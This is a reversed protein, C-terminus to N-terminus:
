RVLGLVLMATVILELENDDAYDVLLERAAVFPGALGLVELVLRFCAKSVKVWCADDVRSSVQQMSQDLNVPLQSM